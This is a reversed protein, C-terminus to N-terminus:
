STRFVGEPGKLRVAHEDLWREFKIFVAKRDGYRRHRFRSESRSFSLQHRIEEVAKGIASPAFKGAILKNLNFTAEREMHHIRISEPTGYARKIGDRRDITELLGVIGAKRKWGPAYATFFFKVKLNGVVRNSTGSHETGALQMWYWLLTADIPGSHEPHVFSPDVEHLQWWEPEQILTNM